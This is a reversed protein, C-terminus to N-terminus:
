TLLAILATVISTFAVILAIRLKWAGRLQINRADIETALRDTIIQLQSNLNDHLNKFRLNMQKDMSNFKDNVVETVREVDGRLDELQQTVPPSGNGHFITKNIKELDNNVRGLEAQLYELSTELKGIHVETTDKQPM